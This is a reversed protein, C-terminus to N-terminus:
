LQLYHGSALATSGFRSWAQSRCLPCTRRRELWREICIGHIDKKCDPCRRREGRALSDYCIPCDEFEATDEDVVVSAFEDGTRKERAVAAAYRSSLDRDVLEPDVSAFGLALIRLKSAVAALSEGRLRREVFTRHDAHIKAVRVILFCLHKCLCRYRKAHGEFDPCDCRLFGDGDLTLTYVSRTSGSLKVTVGRTDDMEFVDLVYFRESFIKEYRRSQQVSAFDM